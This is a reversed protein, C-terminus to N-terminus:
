TAGRAVPGHEQRAPRPELRRLHHGPRGEEPPVGRGGARQARGAQGGDTVDIEFRRWAGAVDDASASRSATSGSTPGSTSPRSPSGPPRARTARPCGSSSATGGPCPSPATPRGDRQQLLELRGQLDHRSHRPHEDRLVPRSLRREQGARGGGHHAGDVAHWANPKFAAQSLEAGSVRVNASTQLDWDKDLLLRPPGSPTGPTRAAAPAVALGTAILVALVSALRSTRTM